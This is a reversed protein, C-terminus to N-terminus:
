QHHTVIKTKVPLKYSGLLLAERASKEEIGGVEFIIRGPLVDTAWYEPTGKGSGMPLELGKKTVVRDPFIRIWVKGSRKFFRTMAKRAAELQRATVEGKSTAKLGYQGFVVDTGRCSKSLKLGSRSRHQKRYKQKKPQLM